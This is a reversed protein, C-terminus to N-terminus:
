YCGRPFFLSLFPPPPNAKEEEIIIISIIGCARRYEHSLLLVSHLDRLVHIALTISFPHSSSFFPRDRGWLPAAIKKPTQRPLSRPFCAGRERTKWRAKRKKHTAHRAKGRRGKSGGRDKAKAQGCFFDPCCVGLVQDFSVLPQKSDHCRGCSFSM